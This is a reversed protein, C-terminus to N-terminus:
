NRWHSPNRLSHYPTEDYITEQPDLNLKNQGSIILSIFIFFISLGLTVVSIWIMLAIIGIYSVAAASAGLCLLSMFVFIKVAKTTVNTIKAM